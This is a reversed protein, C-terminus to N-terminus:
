GATRPNGRSGFDTKQTRILGYDSLTFSDVFATNTSGGNPGAVAIDGAAVVEGHTVTVTHLTYRRVPGTARFQEIAGRGRIPAMGPYHLVADATFLSGYGDIDGIDLYHYSLRVHDIGVAVTHEGAEAPAM